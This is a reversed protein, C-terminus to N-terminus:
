SYISDKDRKLQSDQTSSMVGPMNSSSSTYPPYLQGGPGHNLGSHSLPLNSMSRHPDYMASSEMGGYHPLENDFQFM